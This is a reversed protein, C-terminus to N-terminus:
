RSVPKREQRTLMELQDAAWVSGQQVDPLDRKHFSYLRKWEGDDNKYSRSFTVEYSHGGNGWVRFWIAVDVRGFQKKAVPPQKADDSM